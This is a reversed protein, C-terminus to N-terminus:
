KYSTHHSQWSRFFSYGNHLVLMQPYCLYVIDVVPNYMLGVDTFTPIPVVRVRDVSSTYPLTSAEPFMPIPVVRGRLLRSTCPDALMVFLRVTLLTLMVPPMSIFPVGIEKLWHVVLPDFMYM